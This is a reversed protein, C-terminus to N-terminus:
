LRWSASLALRSMAGKQKASGPSIAEIGELTEPHNEPSLSKYLDDLEVRLRPALTSSSGWDGSPVLQFATQKTRTFPSHHLHAFHRGRFFKERIAEVQEVGQPSLPSEPQWAGHAQIDPDLVNDGHRVAWLWKKSAPVEAPIEIHQM